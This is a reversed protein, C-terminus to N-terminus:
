PSVRTLGTPRTLSPTGKARGVFHDPVRRYRLCHSEPSLCEIAGPEGPADTATLAIDARKAKLMRSFVDNFASLNGVRADAAAGVLYDRAWGLRAEWSVVRLAPVAITPAGLSQNMSTPQMAPVSTFAFASALALAIGPHKM